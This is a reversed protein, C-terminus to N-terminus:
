NRLRNGLRRTRYTVRQTVRDTVGAVANRSVAAAGAAVNRTASAIANSVRAVPAPREAFNAVPRVIHVTRVPSVVGSSENNSVGPSTEAPLRCQGNQCIVGPASQAYSTSPQILALALFCPFLSVIKLIADLIAPIRELLGDLFEFFEEPSFGLPTDAGFEDTGLMPIRNCCERDKELEPILEDCLCDISNDDCCRRKWRRFKRQKKRSLKKIQDNFHGSGLLKLGEKLSLNSMKVRTEIEGFPALHAQVM